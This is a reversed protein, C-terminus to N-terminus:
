PFVDAARESARDRGIAAVVTSAESPRLLHDRHSRPTLFKAAFSALILLPPTRYCGSRRRLLGLLRPPPMKVMPPVTVREAVWTVPLVGSLQSGGFVMAPQVPQSDERGPSRCGLYGRTRFNLSRVRAIRASSRHRRPGTEGLSFVDM